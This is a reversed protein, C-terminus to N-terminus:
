VKLEQVARIGMRMAEIADAPSDSNAIALRGFPQRGERASDGPGAVVAYGHAWRNVTIGAVDRDFNFHQASLMGTLHGHIDKEYNTLRESLMRHRAEKYQSARSVGVEDSYPCSIMQLVCPDDPTQPQEMAGM